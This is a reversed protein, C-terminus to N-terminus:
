FRLRGLYKPAFFATELHRHARGSGYFFTYEDTDTFGSDWSVDKVEFLNLKYKALEKLTSKLSNSWYYSRENYQHM